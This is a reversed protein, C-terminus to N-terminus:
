LEGRERLRKEAANFIDMVKYYEDVTLEDMIKMFLESDRIVVRAPTRLDVM